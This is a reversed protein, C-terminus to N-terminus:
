PASGSLEIFTIGPSRVLCSGSDKNISVRINGMELSCTRASLSNMIQVRIQVDYERLYDFDTMDYDTYLIGKVGATKSWYM